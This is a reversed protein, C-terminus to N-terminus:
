KVGVRVDEGAEAGTRRTGMSRATKTKDVQAKNKYGKSTSYSPIKYKNCHTFM